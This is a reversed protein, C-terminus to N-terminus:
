IAALKRVNVNQIAVYKLHQPTNSYSNTAFKTLKGILKRTFSYQFRNVNSLTIALLKTDQKKFECHLNTHDRETNNSGTFIGNLLLCM